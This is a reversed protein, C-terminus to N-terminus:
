KPVRTGRRAEKLKAAEVAVLAGDDEYRVLVCAYPLPRLVVVSRGDLRVREGSRLDNRDSM